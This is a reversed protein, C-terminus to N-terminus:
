TPNSGAVNEHEIGVVRKTRIRERNQSLRELPVWAEAEGVAAHMEETIPLSLKAKRRVIRVREQVAVRDAERREHTPLNELRCAAEIRGEVLELIPLEPDVRESVAPPPALDVGHRNVVPTM